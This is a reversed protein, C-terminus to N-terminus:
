EYFQLVLMVEGGSRIMPFAPRNRYVTLRYFAPTSDVECEAVGREIRAVPPGIIM